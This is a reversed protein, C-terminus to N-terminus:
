RKSFSFFLGLVFKQRDIKSKWKLIITDLFMAMPLFVLKLLRPLTFEIQSYGACFPGRGLFSIQVDDFGNAVFIKKLAESSYRWYDHPDPHYGVLFPVVGIAQGGSRLVRRVEALLFAHNYIHELLNFLLVTDASGDPYPLPDKELDIPARRMDEREGFALDLALIEADPARKLFRYYSALNVGSGIDLIKGRIEHYSCEANFLMRYLDKGRWLEKIYSSISM